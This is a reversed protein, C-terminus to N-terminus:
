VCVIDHSQFCLQQVLVLSLCDVTCGFYVYVYQQSLPTNTLRNGRAAQAHHGAQDLFCDRLGRLCMKYIYIYIYISLSLYVCMYIYIYICIYICVIHVCIYIYIYINEYVNGIPGPVRGGRTRVTDHSQMRGPM